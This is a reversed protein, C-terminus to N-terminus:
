GIYPNPSPYNLLLSFIICIIISAACVSMWLSRRRLLEQSLYLFAICLVAILIAIIASLTKLWIVGTGAAIMFIIFFLLATLLACTIIQEMKKYRSRSSKM